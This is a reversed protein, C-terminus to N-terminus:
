AEGGFHDAFSNPTEYLRVKQLRMTPPLGKQIENFCWIVLNEATPIFDVIVTKHNVDMASLAARCQTDHDYVIFAHDLVDHVMVTMAEKLDGFDIVMGDDSEGRIPKIEGTVTAEMIYRHGHINRCKSKHSPVRHGADFEIRKTIQM